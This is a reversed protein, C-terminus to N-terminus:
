SSAREEAQCSAQLRPCRLAETAHHRRASMWQFSFREIRSRGPMRTTSSLGKAARAKTWTSSDRPRLARAALEISAAIATQASSLGATSTVSTHMGLMSRKSRQRRKRAAVLPCRVQTM